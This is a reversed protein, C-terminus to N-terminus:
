LGNNSPTKSFHWGLFLQPVVFAAVALWFAINVGFIKVFLIAVRKITARSLTAWADRVSAFPKGGIVAPEIRGGFSRDFPIITDQEPPLLSAQIRVLIVLTPLVLVLQLIFTLLVLVVCLAAGKGDTPTAPSFPSIPYPIGALFGILAPVFISILTAATHLLTPSAVARFTTGFPPLRKWWRLPSSPTLVIHIWATNLQVLALQSLLFGLPKLSKGLIGSFIESVFSGAFVYVIYCFFGRFSARWGGTSKLFAYTRRLSSTVPFESESKTGNNPAASAEVDANAGPAPDDLSLPQYAPPANEDEVSALVPYVNGM